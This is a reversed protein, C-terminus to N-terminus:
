YNQPTTSTWANYVLDHTTENSWSSIYKRLGIAGTVQFYNAQLFQDTTNGRDAVSDLTDTETFYSATVGTLNSGDGYYTSGSISGLVDISNSDVSLVRSGGSYIALTDGNVGHTRFYHETGSGKTSNITLARIAEYDGILTLSGTVESSALSKYGKRIIFENAM